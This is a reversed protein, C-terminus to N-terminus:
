TTALPQTIDTHKKLGLQQVFERISVSKGKTPLAELSPKGRRTKPTSSPDVRPKANENPEFRELMKLVFAKDGEVEFEEGARLIRIKYGKTTM